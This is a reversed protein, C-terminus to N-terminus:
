FKNFIINYNSRISVKMISNNNFKGGKGNMDATQDPDGQGFFLCGGGIQINSISSKQVFLYM